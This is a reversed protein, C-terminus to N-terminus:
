AMGDGFLFVSVIIPLVFPILGIWSGARVSASLPSFILCSTTSFRWLLREICLDFKM